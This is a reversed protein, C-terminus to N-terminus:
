ELTPAVARRATELEAITAEVDGSRYAAIARDLADVVEQAKARDDTTMEGM